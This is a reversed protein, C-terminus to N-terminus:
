AGEALVGDLHDALKLTLAVMTFTPNSVGGTPFISCGAIWLNDVSHMRADPTVVGHRPDVSMRTAGLHHSSIHVPDGLYLADDDLYSKVRGLGRAGLAGGLLELTRRLSEKDEAGWAWDLAIRRLGLADREEGLRVRSWYLPRQELISFATLTGVADPGRLDEIAKDALLDLHSAVTAVDRDLRELGDVDRLRAYADKAARRVPASAVGARPRELWFLHNNLGERRQVEDPLRLFGRVRTGHPSAPGQRPVDSVVGYYLQSPLRDTTPVIEAAEFFPKEMFYRGVLGHENGVGEGTRGAANLLLRPVELGGTALVYARARATHRRGDLTRVPLEKLARGSEVLPLDDVNAHLYVRVTGLAELAPRHADGFRTPVSIQVIATELDEADPAFGELGTAESWYGASYDYPGLQCLAQAERWYPALVDAGFPWGGGPAGFRDEFDIPDLPRCWGTWHNTSGGFMRLRVATLADYPRGVVDGEYLAQSEPEYFLGGSELIAVSHGRRGLSLALTIGAAGGGVVCVDAEIVTGEPADHLDHIM